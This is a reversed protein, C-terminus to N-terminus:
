EVFEGNEGNKWHLVSVKLNGATKLTEADFKGLSIRFKKDTWCPSNLWIETCDDRYASVDLCPIILSNDSYDRIRIIANDEVPYLKYALRNSLSDLLTVGIAFKANGLQEYGGVDKVFKEIADIKNKEFHLATVNLSGEFIFFSRKKFSNNQIKIHTETENIEAFLVSKKEAMPSLKAIVDRVFHRYSPKDIRVRVNVFVEGTKIDFDLPSKGDEGPVLEAIICKRYGSLVGAIMKEADALNEQASTIRAFLDAGNLTVNVTSAARLKQEIKGKQVTALVKVFYIGGETKKPEGIRKASTVMGAAYTLIEDEVLQDNEVLTTADILTGVVQEVAARLAAKYAERPNEGYGSAKVEVLQNANEAFGVTSFIFAFLIAFLKLQKM